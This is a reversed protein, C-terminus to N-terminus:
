LRQQPGTAAGPQTVAPQQQQRAAEISRIIGVIHAAEDATLHSGLGEDALQSILPNAALVSTIAHLSATLNSAQMNHERDHHHHFHDITDQLVNM